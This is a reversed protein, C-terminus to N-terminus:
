YGSVCSREKIGFISEGKTETISPEKQKHGAEPAEKDYRRLPGEGVVHQFTSSKQGVCEELEKGISM